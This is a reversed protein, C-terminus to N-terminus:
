KSVCVHAHAYLCVRICVHAMDQHDKVQFSAFYRTCTNVYMYTRIWVYVHQMYTHVCIYM